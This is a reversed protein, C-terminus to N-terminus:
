DEEQLDPNSLSAENEVDRVGGQVMTSGTNELDLLCLSAREHGHVAAPELRFEDSLSTLKPRLRCSFDSLDAQCAIRSSSGIKRCEGSQDTAAAVSPNM